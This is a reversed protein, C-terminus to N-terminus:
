DIHVFSSRNLLALCYDALAAAEAPGAGDPLDEPVAVERRTRLRDKLLASQEALFQAALTLEAASAERALALRIARGAQAKPHAGAERWVRAAMARAQEHMFPGNLLILAQPAFTSVPRAACPSLTDPQDFAELLPQRVNRKNLLYLSRRSHQRVDPTVHWLGDPEDETFILDYVEPELPVRVSPGGVFPTLKGSAALAADRLAEADLRRRNARWLLANEPGPVDSRMRYAASTVILRHVHKLSWGSDMLESALWDLIEPHTPPAGRTGFDNPTAVLGVGMHHQWLRNVVVRAGLPNEKSTIWRALSERSKPAVDPGGVAAPYGPAVEKGPTKYSGRKLIHASLPGADEKLTWASPPPEPAAAQLAHIQRRLGARRERDEPSLTDLLEDWTVKLLTGAQAALKEQEKSRKEKPTNLAARFRPELKAEKVKRLRVRYPGELLAIEARLPAIRAFHAASQRAYDAAEAPTALTIQAPRARSFFAEIRFYDRQPIPDFKHDHCRACSLTVGLFAAGVGATMENLLEHRIELPDVNGSVQHIPGARNFGAAIVAGDGGKLDGALQDLVFRTYPLDANFAAAVWDRYRWSQPREGDAEYGNTEAFRAVDLWHQAWREGFAPSALLRDVLREHADPRTDALFAEALDPAPPLGTLTFCLRRLLAQRGAEPAPTLKAARLRALHLADLPNRPLPGPSPASPIMPRAPPVFAWHKVPPGAAFLLTLLIASVNRSGSTTASM